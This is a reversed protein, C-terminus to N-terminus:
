LLALGRWSAGAPNNVGRSISFLGYSSIISLKTIPKGSHSPM